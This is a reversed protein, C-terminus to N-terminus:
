APHGLVSWKARFNPRLWVGVTLVAVWSPILYVCSCFNVLGVITGSLDTIHHTLTKLLGSPARTHFPDLKRTAPQFYMLQSSRLAFLVKNSLAILNFARCTTINVHLKGFEINIAM